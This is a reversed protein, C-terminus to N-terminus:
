MGCEKCWYQLVVDPISANPEVNFEHFPKHTKCKPCYKYGYEIFNM